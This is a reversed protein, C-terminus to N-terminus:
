WFIEFNDDLIQIGTYYIGGSTGRVYKNKLVTNYDAFAPMSIAYGYQGGRIVNEVVYNYRAYDRSDGEIHIGNYSGSSELSANTVSNGIVQNYDGRYIFIGHKNINRLVNNLVYSDNAEVLIGHDGTNEIINNGVMSPTSVHIGSLSTNRIANSILSIGSGGEVHIGVGDTVTDISNGMVTISNGNIVMASWGQNQLVNNSVTINDGTAMVNYGETVNMSINNAITVNSGDIMALGDYSGNVLNNSIIIGSANSTSYVLRFIDYGQNKSVIINNGSNIYIAHNPVNRFIVGSIEIKNSNDIWIAQEFLGHSGYNADITLNRIAINSVGNINFIRRNITPANDRIVTGSGMGEIVVNSKTVDINGNIGYTGELLLVRGGTDTLSNIAEMIVEQDNEGTCVFDAMIKSKFSSDSAAITITAQRSGKTYKKILNLVKAFTLKM